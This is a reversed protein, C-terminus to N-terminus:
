LHQFVWNDVMASLHLVHGTYCGLVTNYNRPHTARIEGTPALAPEHVFWIWKQHCHKWSFISLSERINIETPHPLPDTPALCSTGHLVRVFCFGLCHSLLSAKILDTACLIFFLDSCVSLALNVIYSYHLFCVFLLLLVHLTIKIKKGSHDFDVLGGFWKRRRAKMENEKKKKQKTKNETLRSQIIFKQEPHTHSLGIDSAERWSPASPLQGPQRGLQPTEARVLFDLQFKLVFRFMWVWYLDSDIIILIIIVIIVIENKRM